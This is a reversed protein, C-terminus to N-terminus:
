VLEEALVRTIAALIQSLFDLDLTNSSDKFRNRGLIRFEDVKIVLNCVTAM